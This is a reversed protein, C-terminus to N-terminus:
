SRDYSVERGYLRYTRTHSAEIVEVSEFEEQLFQAFIPIDAEWM